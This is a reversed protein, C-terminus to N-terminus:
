LFCQPDVEFESGFTARAVARCGGCREIYKCGKCKGELCNRNRFKQLYESHWIELLSNERINGIALDMRRCPMIDGNHIISIGNLGVSCGHTNKEGIFTTWIPDHIAFEIKKRYKRKLKKLKKFFDKLEQPTLVEDSLNKGDGTIVLRGMSFRTVKHAICHKILGEIENYNLKSLTNMVATELGARHLNNLAQTAKKFVGVGRISDHTEELGDLSVQVVDAGAQQLEDAKAKNILTGNSLILVRLNCSVAKKIYELLNTHLLPEGGTFYITGIGNIIKLFNSYQDILGM